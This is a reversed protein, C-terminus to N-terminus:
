FEAKVGGYIMRGSQFTYALASNAASATLTGTPDGSIETVNRHDFINTVGLKLEVTKAFFVNEPLKFRYGAVFDTTTYAPIKNLTPNTTSSGNKQGNQGYSDGTVKQLLSGFWRSDDFILGSALTYRPADGVALETFQGETYKANSLGAAGSFALGNLGIQRGFAYAGEAELGRYQATGGNVYTQSGNSLNTIIPFNTSRVQYAAFDATVDGSKYVAGVQYNTTEQPAITVTNPNFVYFASVTPVLFGESAQAFVTWQDNVKYRTSLFPLNSTYEHSYYLPQLSTNNVAADHIRTFAEFKYGPTISLGALPKWEYEIYPQVNNMHSELLVKYSEQLGNGLQSYTENKTYDYYEQFRGNDVHEVWAGFRLQGAAWGASVDRSIALLDGWARYDNYKIYGTVDNAGVGVIPVKVTTGNFQPIKVSLVTGGIDNTTSAPNNQDNPYWYSYTYVKNDVHFGYFDGKLDIYEMDTQKQSNDYGAFLQSNPNLNVAGYNKGYTHWQAWSISSANLYNERGFSAFFTATVDGMEKEVKGLFQNTVYHGLDLQGDTQAHSYQFLARTGYEKNYGSQVTTSTTLTNFSGFSTAVNAYFKDLLDYSLLSMTGGFTAYGPQSPAGPGRDIVVKGLFAAPFYAASHHTPDNADGFPIGDFTINFQGDQFGRWSSKSNGLMGNPNNSTFNPTYKATENYDGSPLTVDQIIKQSIISGPEIANLSQQGIALAPASGIPANRGIAADSGIPAGNNAAPAARTPAQAGSEVNLTGVDVSQAQADRAFAALSLAMALVSVGTRLSVVPPRSFQIRM